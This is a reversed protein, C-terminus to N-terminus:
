TKRRPYASIACMTLLVACQFFPQPGWQGTGRHILLAALDVGMSVVLLAALADPRSTIGHRRMMSPMEHRVRDWARDAAGVNDHQERYGVSFAWRGFRMLARREGQRRALEVAGALGVLGPLALRYAGEAFTWRWEGERWTWAKHPVLLFAAGALLALALAASVLRSWRWALVAAPLLLLLALHIM